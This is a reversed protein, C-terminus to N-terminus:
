DLAPFGCQFCKSFRWCHFTRWRGPHIGSAKKNLCTTLNQARCCVAMPNGLFLKGVRTLGAAGRNQLIGNLLVRKPASSVRAQAFADCLILRDCSPLSPRAHFRKLQSECVLQMGCRGHLALPPKLLGVEKREIGAEEAVIATELAHVPLYLGSLM